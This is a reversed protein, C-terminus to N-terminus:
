FGSFWSDWDFEDDAVEDPIEREVFEEIEIDEKGKPKKPSEEDLIDMGEEDMMWDEYSEWDDLFEILSEVAEDDYLIADIIEEEEEIGEERKVFALWETETMDGIDKGLALEDDKVPEGKREVFQRGDWEDWDKRGRGRRPSSLVTGGHGTFGGPSYDPPGDPDRVTVLSEFDVKLLADRFERLYDIDQNESSMHANYYGVSLNTCEPIIDTYNATDTFSGGPDSKHGMGLKEGFDKSFEESCCESGAQRTIISWIDKRDFAIARDMGQILEPTHNAIYSSGCGGVEEARHFIYLGPVGSRLMELMLWIGSGDDGGLCQGSNVRFKMADLDIYPEQMIPTRHVTDTHCSFLTKTSKKDGIWLILNGEGKDGRSYQFADKYIGLKKMDPSMLFTNVFYAENDTGAPRGYSFIRRINQIDKRKLHTEMVIDMSYDM